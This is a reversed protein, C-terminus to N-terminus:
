EGNRVHEEGNIKKGGQAPLTRKGKKKKPSRLRKGSNGRGKGKEL